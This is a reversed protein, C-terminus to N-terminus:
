EAATVRSGALRITGARLEIVQDSSSLGRVLVTERNFYVPEVSRHTAIGEEIVMVTNERTLLNRPIETVDDLIRGTIRGELYIGDRLKPSSIEIFVPFAQTTPDISSGIRSIRGTLQENLVPSQLTVRSGTEIFELDSVSVFSELEHTDGFFEGLKIGPSILTGPFADAMRLEGNFPARITFKELRSEASRISFYQGFIDNASFFFRETRDTIEPLQPLPQEPNIEQVHTAWIEFRDPYDLRIEPLMASLASQFRSRLSALELAAETNDLRVLVDGKQFRNGTRFPRDGSLLVGQVESFLDVRDVSAVRGTIRIETPFSGTGFTNVQVVRDSRESSVDKAEPRGPLLMFLLATVLIIGASVAYAIYRQKKQSNSM